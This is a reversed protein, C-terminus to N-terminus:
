KIKLNGFFNKPHFQVYRVGWARGHWVVGLLIKQTMLLIVQFREPASRKRCGDRTDDLLFSTVLAAVGECM